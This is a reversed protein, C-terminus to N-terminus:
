LVNSDESDHVLMRGTSYSWRHYAIGRYEDVRHEMVLFNEGQTKGEQGCVPCNEYRGLKIDYNREVKLSYENGKHNM